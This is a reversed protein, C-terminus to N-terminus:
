KEFEPYLSIVKWVRSKYPMQPKFEPYMPYKNEFAPYASYQEECKPYM